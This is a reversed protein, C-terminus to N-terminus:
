TPGKLKKRGNLLRNFLSKIEQRYYKVLVFLYYCATLSVMARIFEGTSITKLM